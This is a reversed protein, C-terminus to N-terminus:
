AEQTVTATLGFRQLKRVYGTARDREGTYVTATGHEHATVAHREAVEKPVKLTRTLVHIVFEFTNHDDNHLCTSWPRDTQEDPRELVATGTGTQQHDDTAM